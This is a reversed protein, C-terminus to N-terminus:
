QILELKVLNGAVCNFFLTMLIGIHLEDVNPNKQNKDQAQDGFHARRCRYMQGFVGRDVNYFFFGFRYIRNAYKQICSGDHFNASCHCFTENNIPSEIKKVTSLQIKKQFAMDHIFFKFYFKRNFFLFCTKSTRPILVTILQAKYLLASM